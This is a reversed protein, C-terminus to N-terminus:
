HLRYRTRGMVGDEDSILRYLMSDRLVEAMEMPVGDVIIESNVLRVGHSYDVYTDIHVNTLPQIPHGDLRHWGYIIM